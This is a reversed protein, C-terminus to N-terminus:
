RKHEMYNARSREQNTLSTSERIEISTKPPHPNSVGDVFIKLVREEKQDDFDLVQIGNIRRLKEAVPNKPMTWILQKARDLLPPSNLMEVNFTKDDNASIKVQPYQGLDGIVCNKIKESILPIIEERHKSSDIKQYLEALDNPWLHSKSAKILGVLIEDGDEIKTKRIADIVEQMQQGWLPTNKHNELDEQTLTIRSKHSNFLACEEDSLEAKKNVIKSYYFAGKTKDGNECFYQALQSQAPTYDESEDLLKLRRIASLSSQPTGIGNLYCIAIEFKTPLHSTTKDIANFIRFGREPDKDVGKGDRYCCALKHRAPTFGQNSAQNFLQFATILDEETGSKAYDLALLYNERASPIVDQLDEPSSQPTPAKSM